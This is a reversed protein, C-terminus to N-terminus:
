VRFALYKKNDLFWLRPIQRISLFFLSVFLDLRCHAVPLSLALHMMADVSSYLVRETTRTAM